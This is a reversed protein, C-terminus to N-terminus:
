FTHISQILDILEQNAKSLYSEKRWILAPHITWPTDLINYTALNHDDMTMTQPLISVGVGMNVLKMLMASDRCECLINPTLHHETFTTLIQKFLGSGDLPKLLILPLEALEALTIDKKFTFHAKSAVLVCPSVELYALNFQTSQPIESTIALDIQHNTLQTILYSSSGELLSFKIKAYEQRFAQLSDLLIKSCYITSGLKLIGTIEKSLEKVELLSDALQFVLEKAKKYLLEGQPTIILHKKSSRDFLQEGLEEEIMKLQRSLPPQAMHLFEAAKSISGQEFIAIFYELQKMEM